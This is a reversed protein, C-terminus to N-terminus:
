SNSTSNNCQYNGADTNDIIWDRQSAVRAFGMPRTTSCNGSVFSTIGVVTVKGNVIATLPGLFNFM